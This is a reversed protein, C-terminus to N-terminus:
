GGRREMLERYFTTNRINELDRDNKLLNWNSFGKDVAKRLWEEAENVRGTRAHLCAINYHVDPSDPRLRVLMTFVDAASTDDGTEAYLMGLSKLVDANRPEARRRLDLAAIDEDIKERMARAAELYGRIEPSEPDIRAAKEFLDTADRLRGQNMLIVGLSCHADADAPNLRISHLLHDEANALEKKRAYLVGLNYHTRAHDPNIVLINSFLEIAKNDESMDEYLAALAYMAGIDHPKYRLVQQYYEVAKDKKGMDVLAQALSTLAITDTQNIRLAEMLHNVAEKYKRDKALTVGLNVHAVYNDPNTAIGHGFLTYNDKWIGVQRWALVMCTCIVLISVVGSVTKPFKKHNVLEGGTWAIIIFLGIFPVYAWREAIAPWLGGQVIGLVPVMTGLFWLWGVVFWPALFFLYVALLTITLILALAGAVQILPVVEPYPYFFTLNTPWFLKGLYTAYSVIANAIRVAMPSMDQAVMMDGRKMSMISIVISLISLALLPFKEVILRSIKEGELQFTTRIEKRKVVKFRQLPWYDLLFLVCPLTVLMPKALLGLSFFFATTAYRLMGPRRVYFVYAIMTLMWFSTSLLNKREAVWAITDVNVPHVTFLASVFASRWISGTSMWLVTFLLISNITHFFLNMIHHMGANLGFVQCDLMHSFWTLPHWYTKGTISFAWIIGKTSIGEKVQDNDCVYLGDDFNVFDHQAVQAYVMVSAVILFLIVAVMTFSDTKIILDKFM